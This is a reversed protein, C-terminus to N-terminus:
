QKDFVRVVHVAGRNQPPHATLDDTLRKGDASLTWTESQGSQRDQGPNYLTDVALVDGKWQLTIVGAADSEFPAGGASVDVDFSAKKGDKERELRYKFHDGKQQITLTM